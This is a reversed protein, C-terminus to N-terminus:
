VETEAGAVAGEGAGARAEAEARGGAGAEARGGARAGPGAEAGAGPEAEGEAEARDMLQMAAERVQMRAVALLRVQTEACSTSDANCGHETATYAIGLTSPYHCKRSSPHQILCYTSRM